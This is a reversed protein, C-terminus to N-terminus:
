ISYQKILFNVLENLNCTALCCRKDAAGYYVFLEDGRVVAGCPFVVNNVDGIKEYNIEPELIPNPSRAIVKQPNNLDLLAVGISWKPEKSIGSYILLWGHETKIPPAGTEVGRNEWNNERKSIVIHKDSEYYEWYKKWNLSDFINGDFYAIQIREIGNKLNKFLLVTKGDIKEPFFAGAKSPFNPGIIGRKEFKSFDKTSALGIRDGKRSFAPESLATYTIFYENDLKTVRPDECGYKEYSKDPKIFPKNSLSFNKSDKSKALWVESIYNEYGHKGKKKRYGKKVVRPLLYIGGNYEVAACNFIAGIEEKPELVIGQRKLKM